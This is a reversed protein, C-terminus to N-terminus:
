CVIYLITVPVALDSLYHKLLVLAFETHCIQLAEQKERWRWVYILM